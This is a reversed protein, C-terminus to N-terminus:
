PGSQLLASPTKIAETVYVHSIKGTHRERQVACIRIHFRLSL